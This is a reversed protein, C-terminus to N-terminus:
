GGKSAPLLTMTVRAFLGKVAPLLRVNAGTVKPFHAHFYSSQELLRTMEDVEPPSSSGEALPVEGVLNVLRKAVKARSAKKSPYVVYDKLDFDSLQMAGPIVEPLHQMVESVWVREALFAHAIGVEASLKEHLKKLDKTSAKAKKCNAEAQATLQRTDHELESAADSLLWAAAGMGILLAAATRVPLNERWGGTSRLAGFMDAEMHKRGLALRALSEACREEDLEVRGGLKQPLGHCKEAEAALESAEKGTHLIVGDVGSLGLEERAHTRLSLV